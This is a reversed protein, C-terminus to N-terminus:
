KLLPATHSERGKSGGSAKAFTVEIMLRVAVPEGKFTAPRFRWNRVARVAAEAFSKEPSRQVRVNKVKGEADVIIKLLVDLRQQRWRGGSKYQPAPCHLCSPSTVGDVGADYIKGKERETGSQGAPMEKFSIHLLAVSFDAPSDGQRVVTSVAFAPRAAALGLCLVTSLMAAGVKSMKDEQEGWDFLKSVCSRGSYQRARVVVHM